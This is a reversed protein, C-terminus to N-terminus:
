FRIYDDAIQSLEDAIEMRTGTSDDLLMQLCERPAGERVIRALGDFYKFVEASSHFIGATSVSQVSRGATTGFGPFVDAYMRSPFYMLPSLMEKSGGVITTGARPDWTRSPTLLQLPQESGCGLGRTGQVLSYARESMVDSKRLRNEAFPSMPVSTVARRLETPSPAVCLEAVAANVSTGVPSLLALTEPLPTHVATLANLSLALPSADYSFKEEPRLFFNKKAQPNIKESFRVFPSILPLTLTAMQSLSKACLAACVGAGAAQLRKQQTLPAAGAAEFDGFNFGFNHAPICLVAAKPFEERVSELVAEGLRGWASQADVVFKFGGVRDCEEAFFRVCEASEDRVSSVLANGVAGWRQSLDQADPVPCLGRPHLPAALLDGWGELDSTACSPQTADTMVDDTDDCLDAFLTRFNESTSDIGTARAVYERLQKRKRKRELEQLKSAPSTNDYKRKIQQPKIIPTVKGSWTNLPTKTHKNINCSSTSKMSSHRKKNKDKEQSLM